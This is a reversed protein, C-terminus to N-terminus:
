KAVEDPSSIKELAKESAKYFEDVLNIEALMEYGYKEFITDGLNWGLLEMEEIWQEKNREIEEESYDTTSGFYNASYLKEIYSRDFMIEKM